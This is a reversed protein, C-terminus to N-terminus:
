PHMHNKVVNSIRALTTKAPWNFPANEIILISSKKSIKNNNTKKPNTKVYYIRKATSSFLDLGINACLQKFQNKNGFATFEITYLTHKM